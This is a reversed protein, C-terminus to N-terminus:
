ERTVMNWLHIQRSILRLGYINLQYGGSKNIYAFGPTKHKSQVAYRWVLEGFYRDETRFTAAKKVHTRFLCMLM